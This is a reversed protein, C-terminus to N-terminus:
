LVAACKRCRSDWARELNCMRCSTTEPLLVILSTAPAENRMDPNYSRLKERSGPPAESRGGYPHGQVGSNRTADAAGSTAAIGERVRRARTGLWPAGLFCCPSPRGEGKCCRPHPFPPPLTPSWPPIRWRTCRASRLWGEPRLKLAKASCFPRSFPSFVCMGGYRSQTPFAEKLCRRGFHLDCALPVAARLISCAKATGPFNNLPIKILVRQGNLYPFPIQLLTM